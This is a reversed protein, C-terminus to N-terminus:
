LGKVADDAARLEAVRADVLAAADAFTVGADACAQDDRKLADEGADARAQDDHNLDATLDTLRGEVAVLAERARDALAEHQQVAQYLDGAQRKQFRITEVLSERSAPSLM